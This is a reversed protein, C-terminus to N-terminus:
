EGIMCFFEAPSLVTVGLSQKNLRATLERQMKLLEKM